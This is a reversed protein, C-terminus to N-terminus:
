ENKSRQKKRKKRHPSFVKAGIAEQLAELLIERM